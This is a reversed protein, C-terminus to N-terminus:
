ENSSDKPVFVGNKLVYPTNPLLGNEGIYGTVLRYRNVVDDWYRIQIVGTEGATATGKFGATATGYNGATATGYNGATATGKFGATATGYNGATAKFGVIARGAAGNDSIFQTATEQTGCHLVTSSPFKVKGDLNIIESEEVECVLWKASPEWNLLRGNGEGWLLGHLGYGCVPKKSWDPASVEGSEPWQFGGYSKLHEDCTRLVLVKSM